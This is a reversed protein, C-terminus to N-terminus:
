SSRDIFTAAPAEEGDAAAVPAIVDAHTAGAARLLFDLANRVMYDEVWLEIVLLDPNEVRADWWRWTRQEPTFWYAWNGATWPWNRRALKMLRDEDEDTMEPKCVAVFWDPMKARWEENTPWRRPKELLVITLARRVRALVEEANGPCHVHVRTLGPAPIQEDAAPGRLLRRLEDWKM